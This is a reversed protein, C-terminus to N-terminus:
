PASQSFDRRGRLCISSSEGAPVKSNERWPLPNKPSANRENFGPIGFASAPAPLMACPNQDFALEETTQDWHIRIRQHTNQRDYTSSNFTKNCAIKNAPAAQIEPNSTNPLNRMSRKIPKKCQHLNWTWIAFTTNIRSIQFTSIYINRCESGSLDNESPHNPNSLSSFPTSEIQIIQGAMLGNYTLWRKFLRTGSKHTEIVQPKVLQLRSRDLSSAVNNM